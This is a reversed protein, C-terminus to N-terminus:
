YYVSIRVYCLAMSFQPQPNVVIQDVSLFELFSSYKVKIDWFKSVVYYIGLLIRSDDQYNTFMHRM